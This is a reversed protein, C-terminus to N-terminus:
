VRAPVRGIELSQIQFFVHGKGGRKPGPDPCCITSRANPPFPETSWQRIFPMLSGLASICMDDSRKVDIRPMRIVMKDGAKLGASCTGQVEIVTVMIEHSSKTPPKKM